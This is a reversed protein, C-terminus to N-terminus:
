KQIIKKPKTQKSPKKKQNTFNMNEFEKVFFKIASSPNDKRWAFALRYAITDVGALPKFVLDARYNKASEHILAIGM